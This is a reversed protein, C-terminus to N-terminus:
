PTGAAIIWARLLRWQFPVQVAGYRLPGPGLRLPRDVRQDYRRRNRFLLPSCLMTLIAQSKWKGDASASAGAVLM